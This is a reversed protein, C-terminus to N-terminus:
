WDTLRRRRKNEKETGLVTEGEAEYSRLKATPDAMTGFSKAQKVATRM